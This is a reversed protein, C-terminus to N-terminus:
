SVRCTFSIRSVPRHGYWVGKNDRLSSCVSPYKSPSCSHINGHNCSCREILISFFIVKWLSKNNRVKLTGHVSFQIGNEYGKITGAFWVCQWCSNLIHVGIYFLREGAIGRKSRLSLIISFIPSGPSLALASNCIHLVSGKYKVQANATSDQTELSKEPKVLRYTASCFKLTAAGPGASASFIIGFFFVNDCAALTSVCLM